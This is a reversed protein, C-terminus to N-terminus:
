YWFGRGAILRNPVLGNGQLTLKSNQGVSRQGPSVRLIEKISNTVNSLRLQYAGIDMTIKNMALIVLESVFQHLENPIPPFITTDKNVAIDGISVSAVDSVAYTFTPMVSTVPTKNRVKYNNPSKSSYFDTVGLSTTGIDYVYSNPTYTVAGTAYNINTVIWSNKDNVLEGPRRYYYVRYKDVTGTQPVPVFGIRDHTLYFCTPTNQSSGSYLYLQDYEIRTMPRVRGDIVRDIRRIKNWMSYEPFVYEQQGAVFSFDEHEIFYGNDAGMLLPIMKDYLERQAIDLVTKPPFNNQADPFYGYDYVSKVLYDSTYPM